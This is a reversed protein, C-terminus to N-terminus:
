FSFVFHVIFGVCFYDGIFRAGDTGDILRVGKSGTDNGLGETVGNIGANGVIFPHPYIIVPATVRNTYTTTLRLTDLHIL